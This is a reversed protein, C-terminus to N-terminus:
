EWIELPRTNENTSLSSAGGCPLGQASSTFRDVRRRSASPDPYTAAARHQHPSVGSCREIRGTVLSELPTVGIIELGVPGRLRLDRADGQARHPGACGVAVARDQKESAM